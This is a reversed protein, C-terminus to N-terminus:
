SISIYSFAACWLGACSLGSFIQHGPLACPDSGAVPRPEQDYRQGYVRFMAVGTIGPKRLVADSAQLALPLNKINRLRFDLHRFVANVATKTPLTAMHRPGTKGLADVGVGLIALSDPINHDIQLVVLQQGFVPQCLPHVVQKAHWDCCTGDGINTALSGGPELSVTALIWFSTAVSGVDGVKIFGTEPNGSLQVPQM